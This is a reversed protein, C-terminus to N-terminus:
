YEVCMKPRFWKGDGREGVHAQRAITHVAAVGYHSLQNPHHCPPHLGLMYM